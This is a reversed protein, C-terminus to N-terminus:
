KKKPWSKLSGTYGVKKLAASMQTLTAKKPDYKVRAEKNDFDVKASRVGPVSELAKRAV